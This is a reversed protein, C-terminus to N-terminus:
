CEQEEKLRTRQRRKQARKQARLREEPTAAAVIEDDDSGLLAMLSKAPPQAALVRAHPPVAEFYECTDPCECWLSLPFAEAVDCVCQTENRCDHRRIEDFREAFGVLMKLSVKREKLVELEARKYRTPVSRVDRHLVELRVLRILMHSLLRPSHGLLDALSGATHWSGDAMADLIESRLALDAYADALPKM